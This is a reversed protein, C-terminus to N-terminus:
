NSNCLDKKLVRASSQRGIVDVIPCVEDKIRDCLKGLSESGEKVAGAAYADEILSTIKLRLEVASKSTSIANRDSHFSDTCCKNVIGMVATICQNQPDAWALKDADVLALLEDISSRLTVVVSPPGVPCDDVTM